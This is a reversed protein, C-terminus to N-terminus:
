SVEVRFKERVFDAADEKFISHSRSIAGKKKRRFKIRYGPRSLSVCVDVGFVGINPDYVMGPFDIHEKIGFSFNGGDDFSSYKLHNEVAEFAKELFKTAKDKRLALKCGIPEGKKIGFDRISQKAFTRVPKHGGLQGLVREAKMLKEGGEGVGINLTVKDVKIQKMPNM